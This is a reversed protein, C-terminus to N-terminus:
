VWHIKEKFYYGDDDDDDEHKVIAVCEITRLKKPLKTLFTSL